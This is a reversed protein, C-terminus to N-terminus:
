HRNEATAVGSPVQREKQDLCGRVIPACVAGSAGAEATDGAHCLAAARGDVVEFRAHCYGGAGANLGGGIVSCSMTVGSNTAASTKNRMEVDPGVRETKAPL